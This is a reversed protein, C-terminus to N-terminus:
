RLLDTLAADIDRFRFTFGLQEARRPVARQGTLLTEALEGLAARLGFGPVPLFAPRRVARGLARTFELNTVPNPATLNLPGRADATTLSFAVLDVWDDLHIWPFFQTGSGIPGGVGLRFPLLMKALAGGSPHLAIGTRLTVVRTFSAAHQAEEEWAVCLDALFDGGPPTDETVLAAGRDGYYGVGSASILARPPADMTQMAAVLSRTALIRSSRLLTKRSETWRADAIGAGALNVIADTGTLAKAWPGATGDPRWEIDQQGPGARRTLVRVHHGQEVLRRRLATGLFGSGGAIAVQM